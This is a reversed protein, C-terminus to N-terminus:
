LTRETLLRQLEKKEQDTITKSSMKAMLGEVRTDSEMRRLCKIVDIFEDRFRPGEIMLDMGALKMVTAYEREDERFYEVLVATNVPKKQLIGIIRLFLDGGPADLDSPNDEWCEVLGPQQLLLAIARRMISPPAISTSRNVSKSPMPAIHEDGQIMAFLQSAPLRVRLALEEVFLQQFVGTPMKQCYPIALSVLRARGDAHSIDLSESLNKLLLESLNEAQEVRAVFAREGEKKVFSDPDEGDPLFVFRVVNGEEMVSLAIELARLAAQKGARDGDFCFVIESTHRFLLRLHAATTATGLTAVAYRVEHAALVIVDMYGEVVVIRKQERNHQLLEYLGYLARSKHFVPTEPSNLYKPEGEGIVRGGFGIVRGRTDRIPFMVRERFRDYTSKKESEILLGAGLLQQKSIGKSLLFTSLNTWGDPVFGLAYEQIIKATLGREEGYAQVNEHKAYQMQFYKMAMALVEYLSQEQASKKPDVATVQVNVGVRQALKQLADFFSLHEYAMLFSIANGGEQCGFCYYFQKTANVNFSATKEDHFPCCAKYSNGAKKLHVYEDIVEVINLRSLVDDIVAQSIRQTM